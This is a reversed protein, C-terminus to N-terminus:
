HDRDQSQGNVELELKGSFMGSFATNIRTTGTWSNGLLGTEQIQFKGTGYIEMADRNEKESIPRLVFKLTYLDSEQGPALTLPVPTQEGFFNFTTPMPYSRGENDVIKPPSNQLYERMYELNTDQKSVNRVRVVLTVTEGTHYARHEGLRYGLGVQLGGVKKGWATFGEKQPAIDPGIPGTTHPGRPLLYEKKNPPDVVAAKEKERKPKEDTKRKLTWLRNTSGEKSELIRPRGESSREPHCLRLTDGDLEYLCETMVEKLDPDLETLDIEKPKRSPHLKFRAQHVVEKGERNVVLRVVDDAFSLSKWVSAVDDSWENKGGVTLVVYVWTGRILEQDTKPKDTKKGPLSKPADKQVQAQAAVTRYTLITAGTAVIGLMLVVAVAAKLKTFLMAKMVGETLAVVKVSVAGTAAAKGAVVLSATTITSEVLPLPVGATAVKQSLVAALAGGSLAVGRQTLRRALMKRAIALRGAVTGEPWGLDRAAERRTKGELDCLVIPVRYKDPLRSLEQDLLPRLDDWRDREVGAEAAAEAAEAMQKERGKRKAAVSRAKLATQHAVGYLWNAVMEKPEVAAARRTLVLFTAQFADEADHHHRLLRRCVGWVMPGHRQVLAAFAAEDRQTLFCDLLQGDAMVARRIHRIVQSANNNAM